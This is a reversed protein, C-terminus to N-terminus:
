VSVPTETELSYSQILDLAPEELNDIVDRVKNLEVLVVDLAEGVAVLKTPSYTGVRGMLYNLNLYNIKNQFKNVINDLLFVKYLVEKVEQNEM